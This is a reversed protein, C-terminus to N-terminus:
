DRRADNRIRPEYDGTLTLALLGAVAKGFNWLLHPLGRLALDILQLFLLTANMRERVSQRLRPPAQPVEQEGLQELLNAPM